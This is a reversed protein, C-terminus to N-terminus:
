PIADGKAPAYAGKVTIGLEQLVEEAAGGKYLAHLGLNLSAGNKKITAARGGLQSSKEILVVSLGARALYISSTLGSM